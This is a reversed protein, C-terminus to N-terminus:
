GVMIFDYFYFNQYREFKWISFPYFDVLLTSTLLRLLITCVGAFPDKGNMLPGSNPDTNPAYSYRVGSMPFFDDPVSSKPSIQLNFLLLLLFFIFSGLFGIWLVYIKVWFHFDQEWLTLM